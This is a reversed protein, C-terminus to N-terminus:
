HVPSPIFRYGAERETVIYQPNKRTEIKARLTAILVRLTHRSTAANGWLVEILTQYSLLEDPHGCLFQLLEFEQPSFQTEVGRVWGRRESIHLFFDGIQISDQVQADSKDTKGPTDASVLILGAFGRRRADLMFLNKEEERYEPSLLVMDIAKSELCVEADLLSSSRALVRFRSGPMMMERLDRSFAEKSGVLLLSM